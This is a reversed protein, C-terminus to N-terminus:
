IANERASKVEWQISRQDAADKTLGDLVDMCDTPSETSCSLGGEVVSVLCEM